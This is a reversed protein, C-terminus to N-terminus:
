MPDTGPRSGRIPIDEPRQGGPPVLTVQPDYKVKGDREFRAVTRYVTIPITHGEFEIPVTGESELWKRSLEIGESEYLEKAFEIGGCCDEGCCYRKTRPCYYCDPHLLRPDLENEGM